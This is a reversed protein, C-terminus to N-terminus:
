GVQYTIRRGFIGFVILILFLLVLIMISTLTSAKGLQWFKFAHEYTYYILVNSSYGPGGETMLYVQTFVKFSQIISVVFVFLTSPGVLPLTVHLHKQFWNAGDAVVADYLEKPINQLGALYILMYYGVNKWITMIIIAWLSYRSDGLWGLEHIGFIGLFKNIPGLSPDYMFVWVMAAAAYPILLPYFLALRFMSKYRVENILIAFFLALAMTPFITTVAFVVNNKIVQWFIPNHFFEAYNKFWQFIPHHRTFADARYLSLRFADLIPYYTFIALFVLSPLLYLFITVYRNHTLM